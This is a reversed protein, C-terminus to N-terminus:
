LRARMLQAMVHPVAGILHGVLVTPQIMRAVRVVANQTLWQTALKAVLIEPEGYLVRFQSQTTLLGGDKFDVLVIRRFVQCFQTMVLQHLRTLAQLPGVVLM